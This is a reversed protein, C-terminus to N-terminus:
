HDVPFLPNRKALFSFRRRSTARSGRSTGALQALLVAQEEVPLRTLLGRAEALKKQEGARSFARRALQKKMELRQGPDGIQEVIQLAKEDEDQNIAKWAAQHVLSNVIESPATKAAAMLAEPTGNQTLEQYNAWPGQQARTSKEFEVIRTRLAAMRDPAFREIDPMVPKLQEFMGHIMGPYSTAGGYFFRRGSATVIRTPPADSLLADFIMTSLERATQENLNSFSLNATTRPATPDKIARNNEIWM